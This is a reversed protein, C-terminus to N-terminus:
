TGTEHSSAIGSETDGETAEFVDFRAVRKKQKPLQSSDM